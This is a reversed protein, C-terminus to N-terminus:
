TAHLRNKHLASIKGATGVFSLGYAQLSDLLQQGMFDSSAWRFIRRRKVAPEVRM